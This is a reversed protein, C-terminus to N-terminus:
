PYWVVHLFYRRNIVDATATEMWGLSSIELSFNRHANREKASSLSVPEGLDLKGLALELGGFNDVSRNEPCIALEYSDHQIGRSSEDFTTTLLYLLEVVSEGTRNRMESSGSSTVTEKMNQETVEFHILTESGLIVSRVDMGGTYLSIAELQGILWAKILFEEGRATHSQSAVKGELKPLGSSLAALVMEHLSWDSIDATAVLHTGNRRNKRVDVMDWGNNDHHKDRGYKFHCPSLTLSPLGTMPIVDDRKVFVGADLLSRDNWIVFTLYLSVSSPM